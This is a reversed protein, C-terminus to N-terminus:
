VVVPCDKEGHNKGCRFCNQIGKGKTTSMANIELSGMEELEKEAAEIARSVEIAKDFTLSPEILLRKYAATHNIGVIFQIKNYRQVRLKRNGSRLRNAFDSVNENVNRKISRFNFYITKVM